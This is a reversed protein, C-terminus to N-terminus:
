FLQYHALSKLTTRNVFCVRLPKTYIHKEPRFHEYLVKYDGAKTEMTCQATGICSSLTAVNSSSSNSHINGPKHIKIKVDKFFLFLFPLTKLLGRESVFPMLSVRTNCYAVKMCALWTKKHVHILFPYFFPSTSYRTRVPEYIIPLIM